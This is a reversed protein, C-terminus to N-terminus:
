SDVRYTAYLWSVYKLFDEPSGAKAKDHTSSQRPLAEIFSEDDDIRVNEKPTPYTPGILFDRVMAVGRTLVCGHPSYAAVPSYAAM